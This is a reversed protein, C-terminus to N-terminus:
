RASRTPGQTALACTQLCLTGTRRLVWRITQRRRLLEEPEATTGAAGELRGAEAPEQAMNYSRSKPSSLFPPFVVPKVQLKQPSLLWTKSLPHPFVAISGRSPLQSAAASTDSGSRFVGAKSRPGPMYGKLVVPRARDSGRGQPIQGLFKNAISPPSPKPDLAM